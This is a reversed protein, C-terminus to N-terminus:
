IGDAGGLRCLTIVKEKGITTLAFILAVEETVRLTAL